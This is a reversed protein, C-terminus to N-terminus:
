NQAICKFLDINRPIKGSLEDKVGGTGEASRIVRLLYPPTEM